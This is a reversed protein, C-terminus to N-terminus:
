PYTPTDALPPTARNPMETAPAVTSTAAATRRALRVPAEPQPAEAAPAATADQELRGSIVERVLAVLERRYRRRSAVEEQLGSHRAAASVRANETQLALAAQLEADGGSHALQKRLWNGSRKLTRRLAYDPVLGRALCEAYFRQAARYAHEQMLLQFRQAVAGCSRVDVDPARRAHPARGETAREIVDRLYADPAVGDRRMERAERLVGRWDRQAAFAQVLATHMRLTPAVGWAQQASRKVVLAEGPRQAACLGQVLPEVHAARPAYGDRLMSHLVHEAGTLDGLAGGLLRLRMAYAQPSRQPPMTGGETPQAGGSRERAVAAATAAAVTRQEHAEWARWEETATVGGLEESRPQLATDRVWHYLPEAGAASEGTRRSGTRFGATRARREDALLALRVKDEFGLAALAAHLRQQRDAAPDGPSPAGHWPVPRALATCLRQMEGRHEDVAALVMRAIGRRIRGGLRLRAAAADQLAARALPVSRLAAACRLLAATCVSGPEVFHEPLEGILATLPTSPLAAADVMRAVRSPAGAAGAKPPAVVRAAFQVALPAHGAHVLAHIVGAAAHQVYAACASRDAPARRENPIPSRPESACQVAARRLADLAHHVDGARGYASAALAWTEANPEPFASMPLEAPLAGGATEPGSRVRFLRLLWLAHVHDDHAVLAQLLTNLLELPSVHALASCHGALVARMSAPLTAHAGLLSTWAATPIPAGHRTLARLADGVAPADRRRLRELVTHLEGSDAPVSPQAAGAAVAACNRAHRLAADHAAAPPALGLVQLLADYRGERGLTATMRQFHVVPVSGVHQQAFSLLKRAILLADSRRLAVHAEAALGLLTLATARLAPPAEAGPQQFPSFTTTYAHALAHQLVALSDSAQPAALVRRLTDLLMRSDSAHPETPDIRVALAHDLASPAGAAYVTHWEHSTPAEAACTAPRLQPAARIAAPYLAAVGVHGRPAVGPARPGAAPRVAGRLALLRWPWPAPPPRM